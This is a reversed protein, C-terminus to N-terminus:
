AIRQTSAKKRRALSLSVAFPSAFDKCYGQWISNKDAKVRKEKDWKWIFIRSNKDPFPIALCSTVGFHSANQVALRFRAKATLRCEM